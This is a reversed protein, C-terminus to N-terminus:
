GVWLGADASLLARSLWTAAAALVSPRIHCLAYESLASEMAYKGLQHCQNTAGSLHSFRRLFNIPLPRSLQYDLTVLIQREMATIQEKTFADATIYVFDAVEPCYVEEYKSALFMAASGVLQLHERAITTSQM